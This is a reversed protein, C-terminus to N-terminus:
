LDAELYPFVTIAANKTEPGLQYVSDDDAIVIV